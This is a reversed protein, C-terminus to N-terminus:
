IPTYFKYFFDPNKIGYGKNDTSLAVWDNIHYSKAGTKVEHVFRLRVHDSDEIQDFSPATPKFNLTFQYGNVIELRASKWKGNPYKQIHTIQGDAFRVKNREYSFPYSPIKDAEALQFIKVNNKYIFAPQIIVPSNKGFASGFVKMTIEDGLKLLNNLEKEQGFMTRMLYKKGNYSITYGQTKHNGTNLIDLDKVGDRNVIEIVKVTITKGMVDEALKKKQKFEDTQQYAKFKENQKIEEPTRKVKQRYKVTDLKITSSSSNSKNPRESKDQKNLRLRDDPKSKSVLKAKNEKEVPKLDNKLKTFALCSVLVVPVILVYIAKRMKASPKNFLMTIRKKLPIKSFNHYLMGQGAVSLHLLLDAYMSKDTSNAMARDVEFEHNEEISKSFFYIFPNFWLIIQAIKVILRDISHYLKVHLMEHAIIQQREDASLEQDNLFIYNFFSGNPLKPQNYLINVTGIKTIKKTSLKKFLIILTVLLHFALVSVILLYSIKFLSLWDIPNETAVPIQINPLNQPTTQLTNVYVIQQMVPMQRLQPAVSIRM